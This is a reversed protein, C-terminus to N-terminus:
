FKYIKIKKNFLLLETEKYIYEKGNTRVKM